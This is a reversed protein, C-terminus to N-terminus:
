DRGIAFYVAFPLLFLAAVGALLLGHAAILAGADIGSLEQWAQRLITQFWETTAGICAGLLGFAFALAAIHVATIPRAVSEVAERRARIQAKWWVQGADPVRAFAVTGERTMAVARAAAQADACVSCAEAHRELESDSRLQMAAEIVESEFECEPFVSETFNM